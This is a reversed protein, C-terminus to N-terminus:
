KACRFGIADASFTPATEAHVAFRGADSASGFYGGRFIGTVKTEDVWFRDGYFLPNAENGTELPLGETTVGQIFGNKPLSM